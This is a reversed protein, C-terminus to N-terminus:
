GFLFVVVSEKSKLSNITTELFTEVGLVDQAIIPRTKEELRSFKHIESCLSSDLLLQSVFGSWFVKM